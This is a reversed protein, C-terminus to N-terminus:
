KSLLKKIENIRKVAVNMSTTYFRQVKRDQEVTNYYDVLDMRKKEWLALEEQLEIEQPTNTPEEAVAVKKTTKKKKDAM